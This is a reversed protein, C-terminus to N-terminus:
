EEKGTEERGGDCRGWTCHKVYLDLCSGHEKLGFCFVHVKNSYCRPPILPSFFGNHM